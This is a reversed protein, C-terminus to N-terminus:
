ENGGWSITISGIVAAYGAAGTTTGSASGQILSQGDGGQGGGYSGGNGGTGGDLNGRLAEFINFTYDGDSGTQGSLGTNVGSSTWGSPAVVTHSGEGAGGAAGSDSPSSNGNYAHTGTAVSVASGVSVINENITIVYSENKQMEFHCTVSYGNSQGGGGGGGGGSNAFFDAMDGSAFAEGGSGGNGAKHSSGVVVINYTTTYPATFTGNGTFTQSGPEIKESRRRHLIIANAM